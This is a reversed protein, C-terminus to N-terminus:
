LYMIKVELWGPFKPDCYFFYGSRRLAEWFVGEDTYHSFLASMAKLSQRLPFRLGSSWLRTTKFKNCCYHIVRFVLTDRRVGVRLGLCM